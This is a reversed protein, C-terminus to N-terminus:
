QILYVTKHSIDSLKRRKLRFYFAHRIYYVGGENQASIFRRSPSASIVFVAAGSKTLERAFGEGFDGAESIIYVRERALVKALRESKLIRRGIFYDSVALVALIIIILPILLALVAAFLILVASTEIVTVTIRIYSFIRAVLTFRRALRSLREFIGYLSSKRMKSYVYTILTKCSILEPM